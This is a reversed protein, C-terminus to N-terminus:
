LLYRIFFNMSANDNRNMNGTDYCLEASMDGNVLTDSYVVDYIPERPEADDEPYSLKLCLMKNSLNNEQLPWLLVADDSPYPYMASRAPRIIFERTQTGWLPAILPDYSGGMQVTGASLIHTNPVSIIGDESVSIRVLSIYPLSGSLYKAHTQDGPADLTYYFLPGGFDSEDVATFGALKLAVTAGDAVGTIDIEPLPTFAFNRNFVRIGPPLADFTLYVHDANYILRPVFYGPAELSQSSNAGGLLLWGFGFAEPTGKSYLLRYGSTSPVFCGNGPEVFGCYTEETIEAYDVCCFALGAIIAPACGTASIPQETVGLIAGTSEEGPQVARYIIPTGSDPQETPPEIFVPSAAPIDISSHVYVRTSQKLLSNDPVGGVTMGTNYNSLMQNLLNQQAASPTYKEGPFVTGFNM